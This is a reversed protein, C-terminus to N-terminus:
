LSCSSVEPQRRHWQRIQITKKLTSVEQSSRAASNLWTITSVTREDEMSIPLVSFLKIALAGLVQAQPSRQVSVWWTLATEGTRIPRNFPEAKLRYDAIQTKLGTVADRPSINALRPNRIKMIALAEEDSRKGDYADGYEHMLMKGLAKIIRSAIVEEPSVIRPAAGAVVAIRVQPIDL